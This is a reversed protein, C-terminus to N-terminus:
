PGESRLRAEAEAYHERMDLWPGIDEENDVSAWTLHALKRASARWRGPANHTLFAFLVDEAQSALCALLDAAEARVTHKRM